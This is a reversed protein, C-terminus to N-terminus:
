FLDLLWRPYVGFTVDPRFFPNKRQGGNIVDYRGGVKEYGWFESDGHDMVEKLEEGARCM